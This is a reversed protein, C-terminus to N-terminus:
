LPFRPGSLLLPLVLSPSGSLVQLSSGPATSGAPDSRTRLSQRSRHRGFMSSLQQAAQKEEVAPKPCLRPPTAHLQPRARPLVTKLCPGSASHPSLPHPVPSCPWIPPHLPAAPASVGKRVRKAM